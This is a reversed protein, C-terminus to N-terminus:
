VWWSSDTLDFVEKVQKIDKDKIMLFYPNTVFPIEFEELLLTLEKQFKQSRYGFIWEDRILKKPSSGFVAKLFGKKVSLEEARVVFAPIKEKRPEFCERGGLVIKVFGVYKKGCIRPFGDVNLRIPRNGWYNNYIETIREPMKVFKRCDSFNIEVTKDSLTGAVVVYGFLEAINPCFYTPYATPKANASTYIISGEVYDIYAQTSEFAM